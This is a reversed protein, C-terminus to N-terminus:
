NKYDWQFKDDRPSFLREKARIGHEDRRIGLLLADFGYKKIAQKLATIKLLNCCDFKGKEPSIGQRIAQDNKAVMLELKWKEAYEDRFKYLENFKYGTDIHLVPFPLQGFFAKRCLWLLTTSDKGIAWLMAQKKFHYEAKRIIYISQSELEKLRDM